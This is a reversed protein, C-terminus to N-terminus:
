HSPSTHPTPTPRPGCTSFRHGLPKCCPCSRFLNKIYALCLKKDAHSGGSLPCPMRIRIHSPSPSLLSLPPLLRITSPRDCNQPTVNLGNSATASLRNRCTM